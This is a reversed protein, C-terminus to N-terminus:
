KSSPNKGLIFLITVNQNDITCRFQPYLFRLLEMMEAASVDLIEISDVAEDRFYNQFVRSAVTLVSKDV